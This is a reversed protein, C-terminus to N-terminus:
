GYQKEVVVRTRESANRLPGKEKNVVQLWGDVYGM